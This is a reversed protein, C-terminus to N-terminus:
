WDCALLFQPLNHHPAHAAPGGVEPVGPIDAPFYWRCPPEARGEGMLVVVRPGRM